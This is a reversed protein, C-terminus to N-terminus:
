RKHDTKLEENTKPQYSYISFDSLSKNGIKLSENIHQRLTKM